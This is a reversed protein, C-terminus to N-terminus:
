RDATAAVFPRQEGLFRRLWNRLLASLEQLRHVQLTCQRSAVFDEFEKRPSVAGRLCHRQKPAKGTLFFRCCGEPNKRSSTTQGDLSQSDRKECTRGKRGGEAVRLNCLLAAALTQPALGVAVCVGHVRWPREFLLRKLPAKAPPQFHQNASRLPPTAAASDRLTRSHPRTSGRRISSSNFERRKTHAWAAASEFLCPM